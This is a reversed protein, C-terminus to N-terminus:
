KFFRGRRNGFLKTDKKYGYITIFIGRANIDRDTDTPNSIYAFSDATTEIKTIIYDPYLRQVFAFDDPHENIYRADKASIRYDNKKPQPKDLNKSCSWRRFTLRNEADQCMYVALGTLGTESFEIKYSTAGGCKWMERLEERTGRWNIVLHHHLRGNIEGAETTYVYKLDGLNRTKYLYKIRAIFNKVCRLAEELTVYEAYDLGLWLDASTFNNHLIDTLKHVANKQNQKAQGAKTPQAKKNRKGVGHRRIDFIHSRLFDDDQGTKIVVERKAM